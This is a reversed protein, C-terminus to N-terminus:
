RFHSFDNTINEEEEEFGYIDEYAMLIMAYSLPITIFVGIGLALLGLLNIGLIMLAFIAAEWFNKTLIIRSSEMAPWFDLKAYIVLPLVFLYIIALFVGPIIFLMIGISIFLGSLMSALMTPLFMKFGDFFHEFRLEEGRMLRSISLYYGASIPGAIIMQLIQGIQPARLLVILFVIYIATYSSLILWHPSILDWAKRLYYARNFFYGNQELEQAKHSINEQM